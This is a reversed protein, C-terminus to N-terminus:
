QLTEQIADIMEQVEIAIHKVAQCYPCAPSKFGDVGCEFQRQCIRQVELCAQRRGETEGLVYGAQKAKALEAKPGDDDLTHVVSM